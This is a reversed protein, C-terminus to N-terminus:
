WNCICMIEKDPDGYQYGGDLDVCHLEITVCEDVSYGIWQGSEANLLEQIDDSEAEGTIVDKVTFIDKITDCGFILFISLLLKKM